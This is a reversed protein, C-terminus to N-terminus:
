SICWLMINKWPLFMLLFIQYFFERLYFTRRTAGSYSDPPHNKEDYGPQEEGWSTDQSRPDLPHIRFLEVYRNVSHKWTSSVHGAPPQLFTVLPPSPSRSQRAAHYSAVESRWAASLVTQDVQEIASSIRENTQEEFDRRYTHYNRSSNVYHQRLETLQRGTSSRNDALLAKARRANKRYQIFYARKRIKQARDSVRTRRRIDSRLWTLNVSHLKDFWSQLM